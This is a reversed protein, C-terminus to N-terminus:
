AQTQYLMQASKADVDLFFPPVHPDQEEGVLCAEEVPALHDCEGKETLQAFATVVEMKSRWGPGIALPGPFESMPVFNRAHLEAPIPLAQRGEERREPARLACQPIDGAALIDFHEV